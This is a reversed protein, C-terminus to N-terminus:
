QVKFSVFSPPNKMPAVFIYSTNCSRVTPTSAPLILIQPLLANLYPTAKPARNTALNILAQGIAMAAAAYVTNTSKTVLGIGGVLNSIISVAQNGNAGIVSDISNNVQRGIVDQALANSLIPIQNVGNAMLIEEQALQLPLPSNSCIMCKWLYATKGRGIINKTTKDGVPTLLGFVRPADTTGPADFPMSPNLPKQAFLSVTFLFLALFKMNIFGNRQWPFIM